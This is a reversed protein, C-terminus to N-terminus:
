HISSTPVENFFIPQFTCGHGLRLRRRRRTAAALQQLLPDRRRQPLQPFAVLGVPVALDVVVVVVGDVVAVLADAAQGAVAVGAPRRRGGGDAGPGDDRREEGHEADVRGVLDVDGVVGVLVGFLVGDVENKGKKKRKELEM